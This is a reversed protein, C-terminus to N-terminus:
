ADMFVAALITLITPIKYAVSYIGNADSGLFWNVMYRDSVGMIWWFIAAPILPICYRLM